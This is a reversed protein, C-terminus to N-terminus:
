SHRPVRTSESHTPVQQVVVEGGDDTPQRISEAFSLPMYAARSPQDYPEWGNEVVAPSYYAVYVKGEVHRETRASATLEICCAYGREVVVHIVSADPSAQSPRAMRSGWPSDVALVAKEAGVAESAGLNSSSTYM